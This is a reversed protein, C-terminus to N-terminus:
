GEGADVRFPHNARSMKWREFDMREVRRLSVQLDVKDTAIASAIVVEL